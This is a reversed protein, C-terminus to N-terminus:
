GSIGVKHGLYLVAVSDYNSEMSSIDNLMHTKDYNAYNKHVFDYAQSNSFYDEVTDTINVIAGPEDYLVDGLGEVNYAIGSFQEINSGFILAGSSGSVTAEAKPVWVFALGTLMLVCLLLTYPKTTRKQISKFPYFWSKNMNLIFGIICALVILAAPAFLMINNQIQLNDSYPETTVKGTATYSGDIVIPSIDSLKGTDAWFRVFVGAVSGPYFKDFGLPVYWSPYLMFPDGGRASDAAQYNLYCLAPDGISEVTVNSVTIDKGTSDKTTYSFNLAVNLALDTAQEESILPEGAVTYFQWNDVFCKLAGNEYSL